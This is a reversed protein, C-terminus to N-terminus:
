TFDVIFECHKPIVNEGKIDDLYLLNLKAKNVYMKRPRNNCIWSM